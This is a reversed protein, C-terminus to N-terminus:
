ADSRDRKCQILILLSRVIDAILWFSISIYVVMYIPVTSELDYLAFIISLSVVWLGSFVANSINKANGYILREREDLLNKSYKYETFFYFIGFLGLTLIVFALIIGKPNINAPTPLTNESSTNFIYFYFCICIFVILSGYLSKYAKHELWNM